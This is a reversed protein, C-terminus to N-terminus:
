ANVHLYGNADITFRGAQDVHHVVLTMNSTNVEFRPYLDGTLKSLETEVSAAATNATEAANNAATTADGADSVAQEIVPKENELWDAWAEASAQDIDCVFRMTGDANKVYMKANDPDTPDNSAIVAMQGTPINSADANMAAISAYSNYIVLPEGTDGKDGKDGKEGQIGQIGQIGQPGQVDSTTTVGNRNTVSLMTGNLTANVNEANITADECDGAAENAASAADNASQTAAEVNEMSETISDLVTQAEEAADVAPQRFDAIKMKFYGDPVQRGEVTKYKVGPLSYLDVDPNEEPDWNDVTLVPVDSDSEMAASQESVATLAIAKIEEIEQNTFAM